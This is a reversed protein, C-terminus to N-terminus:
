HGGAKHGYKAYPGGPGGYMADDDDYEEGDSPLRTDGFGAEAINGM